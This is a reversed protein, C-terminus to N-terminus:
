LTFVGNTLKDKAAVNLHHFDYILHYLSRHECHNKDANRAAQHRSTEPTVIAPVVATVAVKVAIVVVFLMVVVIVASLASV